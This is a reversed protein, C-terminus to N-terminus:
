ACNKGRRYIKGDVRSYWETWEVEEMWVLRLALGRGRELVDECGGVEAPFGGRGVDVVKRGVADGGEGGEYDCGDDEDEEDEGDEGHEAEGAGGRM